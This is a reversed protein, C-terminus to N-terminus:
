DSLQVFCNEVLRVHCAMCQQLSGDQKHTVLASSVRLKLAVAKYSGMLTYAASM